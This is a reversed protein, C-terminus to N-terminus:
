NQWLVTKMLVDKLTMLSCNIAYFNGESNIRDTLFNLFTTKGSQRPVQLTFYFNGEIMEDVKPQRILVPLLYHKSPICPDTTHFTKITPKAM